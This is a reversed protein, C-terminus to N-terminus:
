PSSDDYQLERAVSEATSNCAGGRFTICMYEFFNNISNPNSSKIFGCCRFDCVSFGNCHAIDSFM